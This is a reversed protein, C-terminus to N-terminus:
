RDVLLLELEPLITITSPALPAIFMVGLPCPAVVIPLRVALSAANVSATNVVGSKPVGEAPTNVFAVPNGAVPRTSLERKSGFNFTM